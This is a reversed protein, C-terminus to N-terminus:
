HRPIVWEKPKKFAYDVKSFTPKLDVSPHNLRHGVAASIVSKPKRSSIKAPALQKVEDPNLGLQPKGTSYYPAIWIFPFDVSSIDALQFTRKTMGSLPRNMSILPHHIKIQKGLDNVLDLAGTHPKGEVAPPLREQITPNMLVDLVSM